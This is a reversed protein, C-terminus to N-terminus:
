GQYPSVPTFVLSMQGRSRQLSSARQFGASPLELSFVVAAAEEYFDYLLINLHDCADYRLSRFM